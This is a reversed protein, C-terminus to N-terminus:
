DILRASSQAHQLKPSPPILHCVWGTWERLFVLKCKWRASARFLGRKMEAIPLTIYRTLIRTTKNMSTIGDRAIACIFDLFKFRESLDMKDIMKPMPSLKALDDRMRTIQAATLHTTRLLEEEGTMAMGDIAFGSLGEVLM